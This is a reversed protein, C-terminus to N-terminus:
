YDISVKQTGDRNGSRVRVLYCGPVMNALRIVSGDWSRRLATRGQADILWLDAAGTIGSGEIVIGDDVRSVVFPLGRVVPEIRSATSCAVVTATFEELSMMQLGSSTIAGTVLGNDYNLWYVGCVSVMYDGPQELDPPFGATITNGWLDCENLGFVVTDGIAFGNLYIRCLAGNDGWVTLTDDPLQQGGIVQVVKVTIGYYYDTLKVALVTSVPNVFWSPDLTACYSDNGFCDCASAEQAALISVLLGSLLPNKM